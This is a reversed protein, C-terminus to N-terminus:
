HVERNAVVLVALPVALLALWVTHVGSWAPEGPIPWVVDRYPLSVVALTFLVAAGAAPATADVRRRVALATVALGAWVLVAAETALGSRGLDTGVPVGAAMIACAAAWPLASLVTALLVRTWQVTWRPTPAATAIEGLEDVLAFGGAAGLVLACVRLTVAFSRTDLTPGPSSLVAVVVTFVGAALLPRWDAARGTSRVLASTPM